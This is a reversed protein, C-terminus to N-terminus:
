NNTYLSRKVNKCYRTIYRYAEFKGLKGAKSWDDCAKQNLGINYHALGRNFYAHLDNVDKEIAKDFDNIASLFNQDSSKIVGRITYIGPMDPDLYITKNIDLM